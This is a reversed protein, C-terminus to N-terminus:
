AKALTLKLEVQGHDEVTVFGGISPPEIKYDAMKVPILGQVQFTTGSQKAKLKVTVTRVVGHLSFRGVAQITFVKGPKIQPLRVQKILTFDSAPFKDTELGRTHMASDRQARDSTLTNLSVRVTAFVIVGGKVQVKGTVVTTRGVATKTAVGGAFKENVRYGAFTDESDPSQRVQWTGDVSVTPTKTEGQKSTDDSLAFKKPTDDGFVYWAGLGGAAAVVVLVALIIKVTRSM